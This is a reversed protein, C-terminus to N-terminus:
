DWSLAEMRTALCVTPEELVLPAGTTSIKIPSHSRGRVEQGTPYTRKQQLRLELIRM